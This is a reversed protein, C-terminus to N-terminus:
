DDLKRSLIAFDVSSLKLEYKRGDAGVADDVEFRGDDFAVDGWRTFGERRLTDAIQRLEEPTVPREGAHALALPAVVSLGLAASLVARRSRVPM